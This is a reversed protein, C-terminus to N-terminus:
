RPPEGAHPQSRILLVPVTAHRLFAEAVSGMFWRTLGSRGHTTMVVVDGPETVELLQDVIEGSRVETTVTLHRASLQQEFGELYSRAAAIEANISEALHAPDGPLGYSGGKQTMDIVRVLHLPAGTVTSLYQADVVAAEALGSGDLPVVIRTYM